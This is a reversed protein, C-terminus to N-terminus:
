LYGGNLPIRAGNVVGAEDSLLYLIAASIEEPTSWSANAPSPHSIKQHNVDISSVQIINATVGSEQIEQALTQIFAEQGAKAVVYPGSNAKPQSAGPSGIVVIRGWRNHLLHPLFAQVTHFTSWIHQDLMAQLDAPPTDIVKSAGSWGGVLHALIDIRGFRDIVAHAAAQASQQESLNAAIGLLRDAPLNLHNILADLNKQTRGILALNAGQAALMGALDPGLRGAAGTIVATRNSLAM